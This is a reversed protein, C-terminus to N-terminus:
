GDTVRELLVTIASLAFPLMLYITVTKDIIASLVLIAGVWVSLCWVCSFLKDFFFEEELANRYKEFIDWPGDEWVLMHSIRWTALGLILVDFYNLLKM